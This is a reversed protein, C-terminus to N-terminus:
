VPSINIDGNLFHVLRQHQQLVNMMPPSSTSTHSVTCMDSQLRVSFSPLTHSVTSIAFPTTPESTTSHPVIQMLRLASLPLIVNHHELSTTHPIASTGIHLTSVCRTLTVLSFLLNPSNLPRSILLPAYCAFNAAFQEVMTEPADSYELDSVALSAAFVPCIFIVDDPRSLYVVYRDEFCPRSIWLAIDTSM